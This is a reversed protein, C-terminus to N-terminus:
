IESCFRNEEIEVKVIDGMKLSNESKRYNKLRPGLFM